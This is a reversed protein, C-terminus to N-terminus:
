LISSGNVLLLVSLKLPPRFVDSLAALKLFEFLAYPSKPVLWIDALALLLSSYGKKANRLWSDGAYSNVPFPWIYFPCYRTGNMALSGYFSGPDKMWLGFSSASMLSPLFRSTNLMWYKMSTYMLSLSSLGNSNNWSFSISMLYNMKVCSSISSSRSTWFLIRWSLFMISGLLMPWKSWLFNSLCSSRSCIGFPM